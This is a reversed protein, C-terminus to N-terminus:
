YQIQVFLVINKRIVATVYLSVFFFSFISFSVSDIGEINQITNVPQFHYFLLHGYSYKRNPTRKVHRCKVQPIGCVTYLDIVLSIYNNHPIM